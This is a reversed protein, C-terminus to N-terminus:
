WDMMRDPEWEDSGDLAGGDYNQWYDQEHKCNPCQWRATIDVDIYADCEVEATQECKQCTDELWMIRETGTDYGSYELIM